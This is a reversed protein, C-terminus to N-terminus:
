SNIFIESVIAEKGNLIEKFFQDASAVPLRKVLVKGGIPDKEKLQFRYESRERLSLKQKSRFTLAIRNDPLSTPGADEFEMENNLDVIHSQKKALSGLLYYKWITQRAKFKLYYKNFPAKSPEESQSIEEETLRISVIFEPKVFHDRPSIIDELRPSDLVEFDNESVYDADHLCFRGTEDSKVGENDFYLFSDKGPDKQDAYNKFNRDQAYVKFALWLPEDPNNVYLQLAETNNQNYFIRIGNPINKILLDAKDLVAGTIPTPNFKLGPCLDWTFFTHEVEVSFLPQYSKM